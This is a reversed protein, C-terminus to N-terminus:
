MNVNNLPLLNLSEGYEEEAISQERTNNTFRTSGNGTFDFHRTAQTRELSRPTVRRLAVGFQSSLSRAASLDRSSTDWAGSVGQKPLFISPDGEDNDHAIVVAPEATMIEKSGAICVPVYSAKHADVLFRRFDERKKQSTTEQNDWGDLMSTQVLGADLYPRLYLKRIEHRFLLTPLFPIFAVIAPGVAKKLSLMTIMLIHALLLSSIVM